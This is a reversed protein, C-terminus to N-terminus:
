LKNEAIERLTSIDLGAQDAFNLARKLRDPATRGMCKHGPDGDFAELMGTILRERDLERDVLWAQVDMIDNAVKRTFEEHNKWLEGVSGGTILGAINITIIYINKRVLEFLLDDQDDLIRAPIDIIKLGESILGANPGYIPSPLLVKADMGKKKEFWVSIVTPHTIEFAQWDRPLLENQLLVLRDRWVAPIEELVNNLDGEAVSVLVEKPNQIMNAENTIDMSRIIPYVPHGAALIGKAFVGGLQGMGVIIVNEKM